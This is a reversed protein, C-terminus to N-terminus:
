GLRVRCTSKVGMFCVTWLALASVPRPTGLSPCPCGGSATWVQFYASPQFRAPDRMFTMTFVTSEVSGTTPLALVLRVLCAVGLNPNLTTFDVSVVRVDRTLRTTFCLLLPLPPTCLIFGGCVCCTPCHAGGVGVCPRRSPLGVLPLRAASPSLVVAVRLSTGHVWWTEMLAGVVERRQTVNGSDLDYLEGTTVDDQLTSLLQGHPQPRACLASCGVFSCLPCPAPSCPCCPIGMDIVPVVRVFM